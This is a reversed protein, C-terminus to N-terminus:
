NSASLSNCRLSDSGESSPEACPDRMRLGVWFGVWGGVWAGFIASAIIGIWLYFSKILFDGIGENAETPHPVEVPMLWVVLITIAFGSLFVGAFSALGAVLSGIVWGPPFVAWIAGGVVRAMARPRQRFPLGHTQRLLTLATAALLAVVGILWALLALRVRSAGDM